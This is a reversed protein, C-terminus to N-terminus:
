GVRIRLMGDFKSADSVIMNGLYLIMKPFILYVIYSDYWLIFVCACVDDCMYVYVCMISVNVCKYVCIYACIDCVDVCVCVITSVEQQLAVEMPDHPM